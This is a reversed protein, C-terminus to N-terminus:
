LASMGAHCCIRCAPHRDPRYWRSSAAVGAAPREVAGAEGALPLRVASHWRPM